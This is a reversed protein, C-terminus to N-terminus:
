PKKFQCYKYWGSDRRAFVVIKDQLLTADGFTWFVQPGFQIEEKM